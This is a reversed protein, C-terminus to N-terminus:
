KFYIKAKYDGHEKVIDGYNDKYKFDGGHIEAFGNKAKLLKSYNNQNYPRPVYGIPRADILVLIAKSDYKNSKEAKLTVPIDNTRPFRYLRKSTYKANKWQDRVNHSMWETINQEMKGWTQLQFQLNSKKPAKNFKFLKKFFSM